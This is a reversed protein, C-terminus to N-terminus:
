RWSPLWMHQMLDAQSLPFGYSIPIFYLFSLLAVIVIAWSTQTVAKRGYKQKQWDFLLGLLVCALLIAFILAFLYHYLFMPRDIFAFPVFNVAYGVLLFAVLLRRRGLLKPRILWLLFAVVAAAASGWWVVPNGLLYIHGQKGDVQTGQWYYVGRAEVPWSYWKSAYPHTTDNLSSQATYMEKNLEVFKDWFAMRTDKNYVPSDILLSQFKPSMFADGDGTKPLLSFHVMFLSIYVTAVIALTAVGEAVLLKWDIKYRIGDVLWLLGILGAVALGSWKTSVLIAILLAMAVAWVWRKAAKARRMALYSSLAGLGALLLISDMLIFRSEVLLANDLLVLAAGITAVRRGLGLQRIIIYVVPVLAAGALAPLIRLAVAAPDTGILQDPTIHLLNAFGAFLLKVFPPHIDFFYHGDQYHGAFTRFYTEDFVVASPLNLQFFRTVLAALTLVWVEPYRLLREYWKMDGTYCIVAVGPM